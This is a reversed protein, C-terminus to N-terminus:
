RIANARSGPFVLWRIALLAAPGPGSPAPAQTAGGRSVRIQGGPGVEIETLDFETAIRALARVAEFEDEEPAAARARGAASKVVELPRSGKGAARDKSEKKAM